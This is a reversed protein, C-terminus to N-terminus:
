VTPQVAQDGTDGNQGTESAHQRKEVWAKLDAVFDQISEWLSVSETVKAKYLLACVLKEQCSM